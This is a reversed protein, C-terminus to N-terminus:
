SRGLHCSFSSVPMSGQRPTIIKDYHLMCYKRVFCEDLIKKDFGVDSFKLAHRGCLVALAQKLFLLNM